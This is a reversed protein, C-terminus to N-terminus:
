RDGLEPWDAYVSLPVQGTFRFSFKPQVWVPEAKGKAEPAAKGLNDCSDMFTLVGDKMAGRLVNM